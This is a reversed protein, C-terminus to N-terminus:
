DDQLHPLPGAADQNPGYYIHEFAWLFHQRDDPVSAKAAKPTLVAALRDLERILGLVAAAGSRLGTLMGVDTRDERRFGMRNVDGAAARASQLIQRTSGLPVDGPASIASKLASAVADRVHPFVENREFAVSAAELPGIADAIAEAGGFHRLLLIAELAGDEMLVALAALCELRLQEAVTLYGAACAAYANDDIPEIAQAIAAKAPAHKRLRAVVSAQAGGFVDARLLTLLFALDFRNNDGALGAKWAMPLDSDDREERGSEPAGLFNSLRGQEKKTLWKVRGSPPSLLVQLPSQWSESARQDLAFDSDLEGAFEEGFSAELQKAAIADILAQRYRLLASAASRYLRFGEIPDDASAASIAMWFRLIADDDIAEPAVRGREALFTRIRQAQRAHNASGLRPSLWANLAAHLARAVEDAHAAAPGPGLVPQLMEVVASFGLSNHLFDLLAALRPMQAFDIAFGMDPSRQLAMAPENFLAGGDSMTAILQVPATTTAKLAHRFHNPRLAPLRIYLFPNYDGGGVASILRALRVVRRIGGGLASGRDTIWRRLVAGDYPPCWLVGDRTQREVTIALAEAVDQISPQAAM